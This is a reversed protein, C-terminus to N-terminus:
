ELHKQLAERATSTALAARDVVARLRGNSTLAVYPGPRGLIDYRVLMSLQTGQWEISSDDLISDLWASLSGPTAFEKAASENWNFKGPWQQLIFNVEEAEGTPNARAESRLARYATEYQSFVRAMASRAQVPEAFGLFHRDQGGHVFVLSRMSTYDAALAALLFIRTSWWREGDGLDVRLLLREEPAAISRAIRQAIAPMASPGMEALEQMNRSLDDDLVLSVESLSIEMSLVKIGTIRDGILAIVLPAAIVAAAILSPTTSGKGAVAHAVGYAVGLVIVVGYGATAVRFRRHDRWLRALRDRRSPRSSSATGREASQRQVSM